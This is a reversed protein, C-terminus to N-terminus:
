GGPAGGLFATAVLLYAAVGTVLGAFGRGLTQRSIRMSLHAGALAGAVGAGTMAATVGVDPSSGFALHAALGLLSIASVIVLSTGIASRMPFGLAVALTPVVVFGGGVGFFGNLLGVASGALAHRGIRLPPCALQAGDGKGDLETAKRWTTLAGLLLIPTFLVLLLTAGVSRNAATGLLVGWGGIRRVRGCSAL